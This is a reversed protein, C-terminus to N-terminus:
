VKCVVQLMSPQHKVVTKRYWYTQVLNNIYRFNETVALKFTHEKTYPERAEDWEYIFNFLVDRGTAKYTKDVNQIASVLNREAPIYSLKSNYRKEAFSKKRTIKANGNIGTYKISIVDGDYKLETNVKLYEDNLRYFLKLDKIFRNYHTYQSAIDDTSVMIRKEVWRCFCLAKM